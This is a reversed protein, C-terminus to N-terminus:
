ERSLAYLTGDDSGIYIAEDTVAPSSDVWGDTQFKRGSSDNNGSMMGAMRNLLGDDSGSQNDSDSTGIFSGDIANLEYVNTDRSGCYVTKNAVAPSSRM